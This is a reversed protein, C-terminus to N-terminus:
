CEDMGYQEVQDTFRQYIVRTMKSYKLYQEYQPPVVILDPCLGKAEWNVMGTKM